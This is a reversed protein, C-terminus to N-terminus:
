DTVIVPDELKVARFVRVADVHCLRVCGGSSPRILVEGEHLFHGGPGGKKAGATFQVSFPMPAGHYENSKHCPEKLLVKFKGKPTERGSRGSCVPGWFKLDGKEYFGFRQTKLFVRVERAKKSAIKIPVPTDANASLSFCFCFVVVGWFLIIFWSTFLKNKM